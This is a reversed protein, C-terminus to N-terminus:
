GAQCRVWDLAVAPTEDAGTLEDPRVPGDYVRGARDAYRATTLNLLSGDRLRYSRNATTFGFTPAGFSRVGALGDFAVAVAEGSSATRGSLLVAVRGRDRLVPGRSTAQRRGDLLVRRGTLSWISRDGDPGAFEGLVGDPLLPAAVALMPWMSGGGNDRLDVVWGSPAAAAVPGLAAAGEAVYRRSTLLAGRCAPLHLYGVGDVIRGSPNRPPAAAPSRTGPPGTGPPRTGPSRLIEGGPGLMGTHAGGAQKAVLFLARHVALPEPPTGFVADFAADVASRAAVWDVDAAFLADRAM